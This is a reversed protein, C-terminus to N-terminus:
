SSALPTPASGANPRRNDPQKLWHRIGKGAFPEDAFRPIIHLHAHFVHQGGVAGVNWGVNYGDPAYQEDLLAKAKQLLDYTDQWEQPTLDFVTEQHAKPVIVGSGILVEQPMQLFLCTENALVIRQGTVLGINCFPCDNNM